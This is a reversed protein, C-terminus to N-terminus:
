FKLGLADDTACEKLLTCIVFLVGVKLKKSATM